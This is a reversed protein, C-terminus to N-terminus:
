QGDAEAVERRICGGTQTWPSGEIELFMEPKFLAVVHAVTTATGAVQFLGIISGLSSGDLALVDTALTRGELRDSLGGILPWPVWHAGERGDQQWGMGTQTLTVVSQPRFSFGESRLIVAEPLAPPETGQDPDSV